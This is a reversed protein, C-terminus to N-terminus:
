KKLNENIIKDKEELQEQLYEIQKDKSEFTQNSKDEKQPKTKQQITNEKDNIIEENKEENLIDEKNEEDKIEKKEENENLLENLENDENVLNEGENESKEGDLINDNINENENNKGEVDIINADSM